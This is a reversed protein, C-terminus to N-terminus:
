ATTAAAQPDESTLGRAHASQRAADAIRDFMSAIPRQANQGYRVCKQADSQTWDGKREVWSLDLAHSALMRHGLGADSLLGEVKHTNSSVALFPVGLKMCLCVGHFRGSVVVRTGDTLRRLFANRDALASRYRGFEYSRPFLSGMAKMVDLRLRRKFNKPSRKAVRAPPYRMTQFPLGCDQAFGFLDRNTETVTSDLVRIEDGRRWQLAKPMQMAFTLDPCLKAPVGQSALLEVSQSERCYIGTFSPMRAVIESTNEQYVSNVLFTPVGRGKMEEALKSFYQSNRRGHHMAGEGNILLAGYTEVASDPQLPASLHSVVDIGRDRLQAFITEVVATSGHHGVLRTDNLLLVQVMAGGGYAGEVLGLLEIM